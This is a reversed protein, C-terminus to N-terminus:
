EVEGCTAADAAESATCIQEGEETSIRQLSVVFEGEVERAVHVASQLCLLPCRRRLHLHHPLCHLVKEPPRILRGSFCPLPFASARAKGCNLIQATGTSSGSATKSAETSAM